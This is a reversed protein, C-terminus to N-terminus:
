DIRVAGRDLIERATITTSRSESPDVVKFIDVVFDTTAQATRASREARAQADLAANRANWAYLGLASTIGMGLLAAAIAAVWRRRRRQLDRQRLQDLNLGLVGAVLKLLAEARGGQGSRVDAALPDIREGDDGSTRAVTSRLAAPFCEESPDGGREASNPRGAVILTFIRDAGHAAKFVDIERAVREAQAAAPSCIVILAGADRLAATIETDLDSTAALEARDLFVPSLRAPVPGLRTETGVLNRPLRYHELASHLWDAWQRDTHNYSIFASYRVSRSGPSRSTM